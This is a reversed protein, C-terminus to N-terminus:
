ILAMVLPLFTLWQPNSALKNRLVKISESLLNYVSQIQLSMIEAIQAAEMDEYFHLYIVERQRKSLENITKFLVLKQHAQTQEQILLEEITFQIPFLDNQGSLTLHLKRDKNLQRIAENRLASLLYSKVAKVEPLNGRKEWLTCFITQICDKCLEDRQILKLGYRYLDNYFLRMLEHLASEEGAQLKRWLEIDENSNSM